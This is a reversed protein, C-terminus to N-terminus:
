AEELLSAFESPLPATFVRRDGEPITIELQYAHLYLRDAETGYVRDGHIPTGLYQLHVRLQHTRGTRPRLELLSLGHASKIVNYETMADKGKADVRFTSPKAPHRDIPLDIRAEQQKPIGDVIAAYTKKTKREAFQRQLLKATEPNKAGILVGSTDRDLRHVIGPRNTELGFTTRPRFFDAVTFEDNMAGKSHTLIGTPKNIVVVNDDEYIIPLEQATKDSAPITIVVTDTPNIERKPVMEVDNNVSIYGAKIYKQWTSRSVTSDQEALYADLRKTTSTVEFLYIEKGKWPLAYTKTDSTPNIVFEGNATQNDRAILGRLYDLDDDATADVILYFTHKLCRFRILTSQETPHLYTIQEIHRPVLDNPAQDLKRLIAAIDSSGIRAM